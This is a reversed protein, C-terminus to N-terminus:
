FASQRLPSKLEREEFPHEDKGPLSEPFSVLRFNGFPFIQRLNYVRNCFPDPAKRYIVVASVFVPANNIACDLVIFLHGGLDFGTAM